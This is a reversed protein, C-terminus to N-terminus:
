GPRSEQRRGSRALRASLGAPEPVNEHTTGSATEPEQRRLTEAFPDACAPLDPAKRM